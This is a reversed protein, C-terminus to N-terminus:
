KKIKERPVCKFVQKRVEAKVQKNLVSFFSHKNFYTILLNFIEIM